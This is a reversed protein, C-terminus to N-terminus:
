GTYGPDGPVPTAPAAVPVTAASGGGPTTPTAPKAPAADTTLDFEVADYFGVTNEEGPDPSHTTCWGDVEYKADPDLGEPLVGLDFSWSGEPDDVHEELGTINSGAGVKYFRVSTFTPEGDPGVCGTGSAIIRTGAPGSTPTITLTLAPPEQAGVPGAVLVASTALGTAALLAARTRKM